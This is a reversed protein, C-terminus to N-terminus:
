YYDATEPPAAESILVISVERPDVEIEPVLYCEHRVDTCPFSECHIHDSPRM